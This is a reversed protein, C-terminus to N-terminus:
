CLVNVPCRRREGDIRCVSHGVDVDSQRCPRGRLELCEGPPAVTTTPQGSDVCASHLRRAADVSVPLTCVICMVVGHGPLFYALINKCMKCMKVVRGIRIFNPACHGSYIKCLTTDINEIFM